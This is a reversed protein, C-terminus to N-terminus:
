ERMNKKLFDRVTKLMTWSRFGGSWHAAREFCVFEAYHGCERLKEFIEVSQSFPIVGDRNGHLLMVDPLARGKEVYTVPSYLVCEEPCEDVDRKGLVLGISGDAAAHDEALYPANRMTSFNTPGFFDIVCRICFRVGKYEDDAFLEGPTLGVMLATHGGSSDGMVAIRQTDVSYKGANLVLYKIANKTDTIPAPMTAIEAHRYEVSAVVYGERVLHQIYKYNDTITQKHWGSGPICVMLPYHHKTKEKPSYILMHLDVDSKHSYVVDQVDIDDAFRIREPPFLEEQDEAFLKKMGVPWATDVPMDEFDFFEM